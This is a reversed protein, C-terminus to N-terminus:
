LAGEWTENEPGRDAEQQLEVDPDDAWPLPQYADPRFFVYGLHGNELYREARGVVGREVLEQLRRRLNYTKKLGYNECFQSLTFIGGEGVAELAAIVAYEVTESYAKKWSANYKM